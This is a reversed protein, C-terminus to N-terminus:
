KMIRRLAKPPELTAIFGTPQAEEDMQLVVVPLVEFSARLQQPLARPAGLTKAVVEDTVPTTTHRREVGTFRWRNFEAWSLLVFAGSGALIPLLLGPTGTGYILPATLEFWAHRLGLAWAVSTIFPAILWAYAAWAAATLLHSVTREHTSALHPENIVRKAARRTAEAQALSAKGTVASPHQPAQPAADSDRETTKENM